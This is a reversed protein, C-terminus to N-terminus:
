TKGANFQDLIQQARKDSRFARDIDLGRKAMLSPLFSRVKGAAYPVSNTATIQGNGKDTMGSLDFSGMRKAVKRVWAAVADRGGVVARAADYAPLFAAKLQGVKTMAKARYADYAGKSVHLTDVVKWRGIDRTRTGASSVRGNATRFSQHHAAIRADSAHPEWFEREVLYVAGTKSTFIRGGPLINNKPGFERVLSEEEPTIPQVVRSIDYGLTSEGAKRTKPPLFKIVDALLLRLQDIALWKVPLGLKDALQLMSNSTRTLGEVDMTIMGAAASM